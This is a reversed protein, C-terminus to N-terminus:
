EKVSKITAFPASLKVPLKDIIGKKFLDRFLKADVSTKLVKNIDFGSEIIARRNTLALSVCEDQVLDSKVSYSLTYKGSESKLVFGDKANGQMAIAELLSAKMADAEEQKAKYADLLKAMELETM